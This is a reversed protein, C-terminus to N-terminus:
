PWFDGWNSSTKWFKICKKSNCRKSAGIMNKWFYRKCIINKIIDTIKSNGKFNLKCSVKMGKEDRKNVAEGNIEVLFYEIWWFMFLFLYDKHIKWMHRQTHFSLTLLFTLESQEITVICIILIINKSNPTTFSKM